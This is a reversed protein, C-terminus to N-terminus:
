TVPKIGVWDVTEDPSSLKKVRKEFIKTIFPQLLKALKLRLYNYKHKSRCKTINNSLELNRNLNLIESGDISIGLKQILYLFSLTNFPYSDLETHSFSKIKDRFQRPRMFATFHIGGNVFICSKNELWYQVVRMRLVQFDPLKENFRFAITGHWNEISEMHTCYRLLKMQAILVDEPALDHIRSLFEKSPIEDVDSLLVIDERQIDSLGKHISQRQFAERQWANEGSLDELVIWCVKNGFESMVQNQFDEDIERTRGSFTVSSEVIVFFDVFPNLQNIRAILIAKEGSYIFTDFIM